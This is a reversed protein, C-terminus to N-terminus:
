LNQRGKPEDPETPISYYVYSCRPLLVARATVSAHSQPIPPFTHEVPNTSLLFVPDSPNLPLPQLLSAHPCLPM